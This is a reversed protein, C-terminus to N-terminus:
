VHVMRVKARHSQCVQTKASSRVTERMLAMLATKEDMVSSTRLSVCPHVPAFFQHVSAPLLLLSFLLSQQQHQLFILNQPFFFGRLYIFMLLKCRNKSDAFFRVWCRVAALRTRAMQVTEREMVSSSRQSAAAAMLATISVAGPHREAASSMQTIGVSRSGMVCSLRQSARRGM